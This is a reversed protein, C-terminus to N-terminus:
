FRHNNKATRNPKQSQAIDRIASQPLGMSTVQYLTNLTILFISNLGIGIPGLLLAIVKARVISMLAEIIQAGSMVITAKLLSKYGNSM